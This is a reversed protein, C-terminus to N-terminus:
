GVVIVLDNISRLWVVFFIIKVIHADCVRQLQMLYFSRLRANMM